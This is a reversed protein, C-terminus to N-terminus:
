PLEQINPLSVKGSACCLCNPEDTWKKASCKSCIKNMTGIQVSSQQAYDFMIQPDYRFASRNNYALVGNRVRATYTQQIERQNRLRESCGSSSERDRAQVNRINLNIYTSAFARFKFRKCAIVVRQSTLRNETEALSEGDRRIKIARAQSIYQSPTTGKQKRKWNLLKFADRPLVEAVVLPGEYKDQFKTSEGTTVPTRCATLGKANDMLRHVDRQISRYMISNDEYYAMFISSTFCSGKNAIRRGPLGCRSIFMQIKALTRLASTDESRAIQPYSMENLNLSTLAQCDTYNFFQVGFLYFISRNVSWVM